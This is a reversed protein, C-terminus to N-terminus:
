GRVQTLAFASLMICLMFVVYGTVILAEKM